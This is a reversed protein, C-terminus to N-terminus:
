KNLKNQKLKNKILGLREKRSSVSQLKRMKQSFVRRGSMPSSGSTLSQNSGKEEPVSENMKNVSLTQCINLM